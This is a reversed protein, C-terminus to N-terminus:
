FVMAHDVLFRGNQHTLVIEAVYEGEVKSCLQKWIIAASDPRKLVAILERKGWTGKESQYKECVWALHEKTVIAKARDTFDQVHKAHNIDTSAQMLNDMIPTAIALIEQDSMKMFNM